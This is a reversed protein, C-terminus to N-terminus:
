DAKDQQAGGSNNRQVAKKECYGLNVLAARKTMEDQKAIECSGLPSGAASSPGRSPGFTKDSEARSPFSSVRSCFRFFLSCFRCSNSSFWCSSSSFRCSRSSFRCSRSSFSCNSLCFRCNSSSFRCSSSCNIEIHRRDRPGTGGSMAERTRRHQQMVFYGKVYTFFSPSPALLTTYKTSAPFPALCCATANWYAKIKM